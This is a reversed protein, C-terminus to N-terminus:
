PRMHDAAGDVREQEDLRRDERAQRREDAAIWQVLVLAGAVVGFLDGVAWLLGAGLRQDTALDSGWSRAVAGYVDAGLPHEDAALVALGLFAHFPVALLVFLVRAPHPLRRPLADVGVAVWAFLCGALLFHLHVAQHVWRNRLSLEFLPSFYLAFLTGGFLGWAVVPHTLLRAVPHHLLRLLGRQTRPRSAQLALTIPASRALLVPAAMGLLLHQVTHLSFLVVDYRALGSQTALLLVVLAAAFCASRSAPWPRPPTRRALRRVGGAYLVALLVVVCLMAPDPQWDLLVSRPTPEPVV